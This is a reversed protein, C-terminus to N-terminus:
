KLMNNILEALEVYVEERDNENLKSLPIKPDNLAQFKNLVPISNFRCPKVIIPIIKKGNEEAAKLLPPLENDIIFDSALFDASLLLIAMVSKELAKDIEQKWQDGAKISTDIWLDIQGNKIFPKLHVNLRDITNIDKHSYSVFVTSTEKGLATISKQFSAKTKNEKFYKELPIILTDGIRLRDYFISLYKQKNNNGESTILIIPKEFAKAFAFESIVNGKDETNDVIVLDSNKIEDRILGDPDGIQLLDEHSTLEHGLSSILKQVKQFVDQYNSNYKFVYFIKMRKM